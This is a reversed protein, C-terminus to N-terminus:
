AKHKEIFSDEIAGTHANEPFEDDHRLIVGTGRSSEPLLNEEVM